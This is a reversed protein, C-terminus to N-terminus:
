GNGEEKIYEQLDAAHIYGYSDAHKKYIEELKAKSFGEQNMRTYLGECMLEYEQTDINKARGYGTFYEPYYLFYLVDSLVYENFREEEMIEKYQAKLAFMSYKPWHSVVRSNEYYLKKITEYDEKAYAEDLKELNEEEWLITELAEQDYEKDNYYNIDAFGSAFFALGIVVVIILASRLLSLLIIRSVSAQAKEKLGLMSDIMDSIKKRFQRYAGRKHMTGCYPCKALDDTYQAGCNKCVVKKM